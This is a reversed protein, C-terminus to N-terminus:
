AFGGTEEVTSLPKFAGGKPVKLNAKLIEKFWPASPGTQQLTDQEVIMGKGRAKAEAQEPTKENDDSDSDSADAAASESKCKASEASEAAEGNRGTAEASEASEGKRSAAEASESLKKSLAQIQKAVDAKTARRSIASQIAALKTKIDQIEADSDSKMLQDSLQKLQQTYEDYTVQKPAGEGPAVNVIGVGDARHPSAQAQGNESV